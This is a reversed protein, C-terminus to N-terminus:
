FETYGGAVVYADDSGAYTFMGWCVLKYKVAFRLATKLSARPALLALNGRRVGWWGPGHQLLADHLDKSAAYRDKLVALRLRLVSDDGEDEKNEIEYWFLDDRARKPKVNVNQRALFRTLDEQDLDDKAFTLDLGTCTEPAFKFEGISISANDGGEPTVVNGDLDIGSVDPYDIGSSIGAECSTTALM